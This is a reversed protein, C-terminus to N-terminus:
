STSALAERRAHRKRFRPSGVPMSSTITTGLGARSIEDRVIARIAEFGAPADVPTQESVAALRQCLSVLMNARESRALTKERRIRAALGLLEAAIRNAEAHPQEQQLLADIDDITVLTTPAEAPAPLSAAGLADAAQQIRQAPLNVGITSARNELADRAFQAILVRTPELPRESRL